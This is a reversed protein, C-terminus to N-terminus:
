DGTVLYLNFFVESEAQLFSDDPLIKFLGTNALNNSIINQIKSSYADENKNEHNFEVIAIPLPEIKGETVDIEVGLLISLKNFIFLFFFTFIFNKKM